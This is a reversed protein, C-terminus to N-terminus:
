RLGGLPRRRYPIRQGPPCNSSSLDEVIGEPSITFSQRCPVVQGASQFSTWTLIKRGDEKSVASDPKGWAAVLESEPRGVWGKDTDGTSACGGAFFAALVCLATWACINQKRNMSLREFLLAKVCLESRQRESAGRQEVHGLGVKAV